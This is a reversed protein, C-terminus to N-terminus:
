RLTVRHCVQGVDQGLVRAQQRGDREDDEHDDDGDCRGDRLGLLLGTATLAPCLKRRGHGRRGPLPLLLEWMLLERRRLRGRRNRGRKRGPGRRHIPLKGFTTTRGLLVPGRFQASEGLLPLQGLLAPLGFQLAALSAAADGHL